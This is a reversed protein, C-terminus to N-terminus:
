SGIMDAGATARLFAAGSEVPSSALLTNYSLRYLFPDVALGDLLEM